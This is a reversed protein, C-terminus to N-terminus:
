GRRISRSSTWSIPRTPRRMTALLVAIQEDVTELSVTEKGLSSAREHLADDIGKEGRMTAIKVCPPISLIVSLFGPRLKRAVFYPIGHTATIAGLAIKQDETFKADFTQNPPLTGAQIVQEGIQQALDPDSYEAVELALIDAQDVIELAKELLTEASRSPAHLTGFLWSPESGPKVIQWLLGTANSYDPGGRARGDM